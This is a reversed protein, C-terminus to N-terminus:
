SAVARSRWPQQRARCTSDSAGQRQQQCARRRLQRCIGHRGQSIGAALATVAAEQHQRQQQGARCHQRSSICVPQQRSSSSGPPQRLRQQRSWRRWRRQRSPGAADAGCGPCTRQLCLLLLDIISSACTLLCARLSIVGVRKLQELNGGGSGGSAPREAEAHARAKAAQLAAVWRDREASGGAELKFTLPREPFRVQCSLM